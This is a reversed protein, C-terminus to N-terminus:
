LVPNVGVVGSCVSGEVYRAQGEMQLMSEHKDSEIWVTGQRCGKAGVGVGM